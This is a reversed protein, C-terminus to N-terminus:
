HRAGNAVEGSGRVLLWVGLPIEFAAMPLWILSTATGVLWGASQLPLAVVLLVSAAVGLWALAVPIIRGRLLLVSFSTSGLSFLWAAVGSQWHGLKGLLAVITATAGADPATAGTAATLWLFGLSTLPVAGVIGEGVRFVLGFTALEHDVDRTLGYLTVALTFASLAALLNLVVTVRLETAHAAATAIRAATTAGATARGDIVMEPFAVAIYFLFAFGAIRANTDRTM